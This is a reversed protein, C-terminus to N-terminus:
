HLQIRLNVTGDWQGLADCSDGDVLNGDDCEEGTQLIGDGMVSTGTGWCRAIRYTYDITNSGNTTPLTEWRLEQGAPCASTTLGNKVATALDASGISGDKVDASAVTGDKLDTGALSGDKVDTGSLSGDKIDVGTVTGDKIGAGTILSAAYSPGGVAFFLATGAMVYAPLVARASSKM